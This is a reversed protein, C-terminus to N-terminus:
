AHIALLQQLRAKIADRQGEDVIARSQFRVSMPNVAVGDKLVEYHLHPGTSLGSSGVYGIVQGQRVLTGPAAAISSMHNYTTVIGGGHAIRVQRGYGGSWGARIVQGDATAVIPSGWAAGFDIGKHMRGFHLIPHYRYGFSSTIRGHVPWIMGDSQQRPQPAAADVWDTRGNATWKILQLKGSGARDLGAYLLPGSQSEGTASRRNALILDFRDGPALDSGVDLSAGIARLYEAATAPSVGAARLSWYLGDGVRGRIRLPTSDIAVAHRVLTLEGGSREVAIDLGLGARLAVREIARATGSVRKGLVVSVATGPAISRTASRILSQATAADSDSAGARQLLRGISDGTGLKLFLEVRNREPAVALPEVRETPAMVLGTGSGSSIPAIALAAAQVREFDDIPQAMGGPLPEIGPALLAAATCLALLTAVGRWWDRSFFESGLDVFPGKRASRRGFAAPADAGAAAIATGTWPDRAFYM